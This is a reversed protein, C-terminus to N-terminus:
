ANGAGGKIAGLDRGPQRAGEGVAVPQLIQAASGIIDDNTGFIQDPGPHSFQRPDAGGVSPIHCTGCAVTNDSSLQEEWFLIKGLVRKAETIPNEVPIPVEPLEAYVDCLSLGVIFSLLGIKRAAISIM